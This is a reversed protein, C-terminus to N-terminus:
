GCAAVCHARTPGETGPSEMIGSVGTAPSLRGIGKWGRYYAGRGPPGVWRKDVLRWVQSSSAIIDELREGRGLRIGVSRNRSLDGYCTLM